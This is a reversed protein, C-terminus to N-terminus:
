GAFSLDLDGIEKLTRGRNLKLIEYLTNCFSADDFAVVGMYRNGRYLLFLFIKNDIMKSMVVDELTGVEGQPKDDRDSDPTTWVPPWNCYGSKRIM